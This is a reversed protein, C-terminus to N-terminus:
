DTLSDFTSKGYGNIFSFLDEINSKSQLFNKVTYGIALISNTSLFFTGILGSAVAISIGGSQVLNYLYIAIIAVNIYYLTSVIIFVIDQGLWMFGRVDTAIQVDKKLKRYQFSTANLSRVYQIQQISEYLSQQKDDRTEIVIPRVNNEITNTAFIQIIILLLTICGIVVSLGISVTWLSVVVSLIGFIYNVFSARFIDLIEEYSDSGKDLKSLIKGSERTTHHIPDVEMIRRSGSLLISNICSLQLPTNAFVQVLFLLLELVLKGALIGLLLEYQSEALTYGIALPLLFWSLTHISQFVQVIIFFHLNPRIVYLWHKGFDVEDLRTSKRANVWRLLTYVFSNKSTNQSSMYSM